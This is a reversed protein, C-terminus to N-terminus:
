GCVLDTMRIQTLLSIISMGGLTKLSFYCFFFLARGPQSIETQSSDTSLIRVNKHEMNLVIKDSRGFDLWIEAFFFFFVRFLNLIVLRLGSDNNRMSKLMKWVDANKLMTKQHQM